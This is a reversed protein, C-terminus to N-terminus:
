TTKNQQGNIRKVEEEKEKAEEKAKKKKKRKRRTKRMMKRRKEAWTVKLHDYQRQVDAALSSTRWGM